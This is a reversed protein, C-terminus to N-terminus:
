MYSVSLASWMTLPLVVTGLMFCGIIYMEPAVVFEWHGDLSLWVGGPLFAALPQLSFVHGVFWPGFTINLAAFLQAACAIGQQSGASLQLAASWTQCIVHLLTLASVSIVAGM